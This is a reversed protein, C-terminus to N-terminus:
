QLHALCIAWGLGPIVTIFFVQELMGHELLAAYDTGLNVIRLIAVWFYARYQDDSWSCFDGRFRGDGHDRYRTFEAIRGLVVLDDQRKIRSAYGVSPQSLRRDRVTTPLLGHHLFIDDLASSEEDGITM